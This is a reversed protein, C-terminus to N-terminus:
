IDTFPLLTFFRVVTGMNYDYDEMPLPYDKVDLDAMQLSHEPNVGAFLGDVVYLEWFTRRYFEELPTHHVGSLESWEKQCLGIDYAMTIASKLVIASEREMDNMHM